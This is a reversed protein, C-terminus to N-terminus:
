KEPKERYPDIIPKPATSAPPTIIGIKETSPGAQIQRAVPAISKAETLRSKLSSFLDSPNSTPLTTPGPLTNGSEQDLEQHVDVLLLLEAIVKDGIIARVANKKPTDLPLSEIQQNIEDLTKSGFIFLDINMSLEDVLAQNQIQELLSEKVVAMDKGFVFDKVEQPLDEINDEIQNIYNDDM